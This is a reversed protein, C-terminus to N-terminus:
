YVFEFLENLLNRYFNPVPLTILLFIFLHKLRNVVRILTEDILEQKLEHDHTLSKIMWAIYWCCHDMEEISVVILLKYWMEAETPASDNLM